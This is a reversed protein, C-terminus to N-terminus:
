GNIINIVEHRWRYKLESEKKVRWLQLKISLGKFHSTVVLSLLVTISNKVYEM